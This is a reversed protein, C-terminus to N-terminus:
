NSPLNIAMLSRDLGASTALAQWAAARDGSRDAEIVSSVADYWIGARAYAAAATLRDPAATAEAVASSAEVRQIWGSAFTNRPEEGNATECTVSVYWQYAKGATLGQGKDRLKVQVLGGEQPLAITQEDLDAETADTLRFRATSGMGAPVYVWLSPHASATLAGQQGPVLPMLALASSGCAGRRGGSVTHRLTRNGRPAFGAEQSPLSNFSVAPGESGALGNVLPMGASATFSSLAIAGVTLVSSVFFRSLMRNPVM